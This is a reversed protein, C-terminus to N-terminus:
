GEGRQQKEQEELAAKLRATEKAYYEPAATRGAQKMLELAKELNGRREQAKALDEYSEYCYCSSCTFVRCELSIAKRAAEEAEELRGLHILVDAMGEYNCCDEPDEKIDTRYNELSREYCKVAEERRGLAEYVEGLKMWGYTSDPMLEVSKELYPLAREQDKVENALFKGMLRWCRASAPSIDIAKQYYEEAKKYDKARQYCDAIERYGRETQSPRVEIYRNLCRVAEEYEKKRLLIDSYLLLLSGDTPWKKLNEELCEIAKDDEHLRKLLRCLDRAGQLHGRGAAEEYAKKAEQWKGQKQLVDGLSDWTVSYDPNQELSQRLWSQAEEFSGMNELARGLRYRVYYDDAGKDMISRYVAAEEQYRKLDHLCSGKLYQRRLTDRKEIAEEIWRLAEQSRDSDYCVSAYEECVVDAGQTREYLEKLIEEAEKYDELEHLARAYDYLVQATRYGREMINAADDRVQEYEELDLLAELRLNFADPYFEDELAKDCMSVAERLRREDALIKAQRYCLERDEGFLEAAQGYLELAKQADGSLNYDEALDIYLRPSREGEKHEQWILLRYKLANEYDELERCSEAMMYFLEERDEEAPEIQVLLERVKDYRHGMWCFRALVWLDEFGETEMKRSLVDATEAIQDDLYKWPEQSYARARQFAQLAQELREEKRLFTGCMQWYGPNEPDEEVMEMLVSELEGSEAGSETEMATRVYWYKTPGNEKDTEYLKRALEWARQEEGQIMSLHRIKLLTLDPHEMDMADLEEMTKEVRDRDKEGLAKRLEFYTEFFTEYDFDERVPTKDYRFVDKETLRDTLYNVFGEPFHVRLEEESELWGFTHDLVKYCDQSLHIHDMLFSILAWGAEKQTELDQCVPCSVLEKWLEPRSRRAYDQYLAGAEKLLEQIEPSDIVQVRGSGEGEEGQQRSRGAALKLAEEMAQRLRRFGEPDEEPHFHPLKTLYAKRIEDEGATERIELIEWCNM